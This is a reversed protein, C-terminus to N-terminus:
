DPESTPSGEDPPPSDAAPSVSDETTARAESGTSESHADSEDPAPDPAQDNLWWANGGADPPEDPNEKPLQEILAPPLAADEEVLPKSREVKPASPTWPQIGQLVGVYLGMTLSELAEIFSPSRGGTRRNRGMEGALVLRFRALEHLDSPAGLTPDERLRALPLVAAASRANKGWCEVILGDPSEELQRLLWTIRAKTGRDQPADVQTVAVIRQARVDATLDLDGATNPIRITGTLHGTACFAELLDATRKDPSDRQARPLVQQVNAGTDTSLRLSLYRILQDWRTVIDTAGNDRKTLTGARVSDRVATWHEGMDGFALAGSSPHKLYRILENLIWSQEPDEVGRHDREVAAVTLIMFWSWHHVKVKSNGRVKLGATPHVDPASSMENSVTIVADYGHERALDWYANIQDADLANDNTKVEVLATWPPKNGHQVRILGDPRSSKAPTKFPIEVFTDVVATQAKSAGLPDLLSKSLPRVISLVALLASTARVEAEKESGIGSTPMLRSRQWEAM